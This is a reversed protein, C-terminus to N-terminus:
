RLNYIIPALKKLLRDRERDAAEIMMNKHSPNGPASDSLINWHNDETFVGVIERDSAPRGVFVYSMLMPRTEHTEFAVTIRVAMWVSQQYMSKLFALPETDGWNKDVMKTVQNIPAWKREGGVADAVRDCLTELERRTAENRVAASRQRYETAAAEAENMHSVVQPAQKGPQWALIADCLTIVNRASIRLDPDRRFMGRLLTNVHEIREDNVYRAISFEPLEHAFYEGIHEIEDLSEGGTLAEYIVGGLLYVDSGTHHKEVGGRRLEPPRWKGPGLRDAVATDPGDLNVSYVLGFDGLTPSGGVTDFFINGCKVDRHVWGPSTEHLFALTRALTGAIQLVRQINGRYDELYQPNRNSQWMPGAGYYPMVFWLDSADAVLNFDVIQVIGPCGLESLVQLSLAEARFRRIQMDKPRDISVRADQRLRKLAYPTQAPDDKAYVLFVEGQGGSGLANDLVWSRRGSYLNARTM